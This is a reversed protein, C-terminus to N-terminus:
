IESMNNSYSADRAILVETLWTLALCPSSSKLKIQIFDSVINLFMKSLVIDFDM